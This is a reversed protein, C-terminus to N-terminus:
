ELTTVELGGASTCGAIAGNEDTVFVATTLQKPSSFVKDKTRCVVSTFKDGKHSIVGAYLYVGDKLFRNVQKISPLIYAENESIVTINLSDLFETKYNLGLDAVNHAFTGKEFHYGQQSRNVSGVIHKMQRGGIGGHKHFLCACSPKVLSPLMAAGVLGSVLLIVLLHIITFGQNTQKKNLLKLLKTILDAKM